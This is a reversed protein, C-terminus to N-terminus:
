SPSFTDSIMERSWAILEILNEIPDKLIKM